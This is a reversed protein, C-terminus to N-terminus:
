TPSGGTYVMHISEIHYLHEDDVEDLAMTLAGSIALGQRDKLVGKIATLYGVTLNISSGDESITFGDAGHRCFGDGEDPISSSSPSLGLEHLGLHYLSTANSDTPAGSHDTARATRCLLGTAVLALLLLPPFPLTLPLRRWRRGPRDLARQRDVSSRARRESQEPPGTRM